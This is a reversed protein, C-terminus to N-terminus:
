DITPTFDTTSNAGFASIVGPRKIISYTPPAYVGPPAADKQVYCNLYHQDMYQGSSSDPRSAPAEYVPLLLTQQQQQLASDAM